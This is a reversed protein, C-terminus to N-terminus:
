DLKRCEKSGGDPLVRTGRLKNGKAWGLVYRSSVLTTTKLEM